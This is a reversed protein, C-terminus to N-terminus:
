TLQEVSYTFTSWFYLMKLNFSIKAVKASSIKLRVLTLFTSLHGQYNLILSGDSCSQTNIIIDVQGCTNVENFIM